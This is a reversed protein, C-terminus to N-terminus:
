LKDWELIIYRKARIITKQENCHFQALLNSLVWANMAVHNQVKPGHEWITPCKPKNPQMTVYHYAWLHWVLNYKTIYSADCGDISCVFKPNTAVSPLAIVDLVLFFLFM